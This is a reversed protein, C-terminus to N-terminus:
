YATILDRKTDAARANISPPAVAAAWVGLGPDDVAFGWAVAGGPWVDFTV